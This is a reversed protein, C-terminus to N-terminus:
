VQHLGNRFLFKWKSAYSIFCFLFNGNFTIFLMAVVLLWFYWWDIEEASIFAMTKFYLGRCAFSEIMRIKCNVTHEGHEWGSGLPAAICTQWMKPGSCPIDWVIAKCYNRLSNAPPLCSAMIEAHNMWIWWFVSLCNHRKRTADSSDLSFYRLVKCINRQCISIFSWFM